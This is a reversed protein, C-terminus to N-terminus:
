PLRKDLLLRQKLEPARAREAPVPLALERPRANDRNQRSSSCSAAEEERHRVPGHRERPLVEHRRGQPWDPRAEAVKLIQAFYQEDGSSDKVGVIKELHRVRKLTGPEFQTKTMAPM